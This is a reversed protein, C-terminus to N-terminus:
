SLKGECGIGLRGTQTDWIRATKDFSGTLIKDGFPNNFALAYVVNRHGESSSSDGLIPYGKHCRGLSVLEDGTITDWVRCTGANHYRRTDYHDSLCGNCQISNALLKVRNKIECCVVTIEVIEGFLHLHLGGLLTNHLSHTPVNTSDHQM